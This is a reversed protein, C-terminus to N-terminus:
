MRRFAGQACYTVVVGDPKLLTKLHNWATEQWLEPMYRPAFADFYVLDAPTNTNYELLSCPTKKLYFRHNVAVFESNHQWPLRALQEQEASIGSQFLERCTILEEEAIPFPELGTYYIPQRSYELSLLANMGTGYGVELIHLPVDPKQDQMFRLGSEIYVHMSESRAGKVSHYTDGLVAHLLTSSGDATKFRLLM